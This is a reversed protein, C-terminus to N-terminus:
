AVEERVTAVNTGGLAKLDAEVKGTDMSAPAGAVSIWFGHTSASRFSEHEFVAHYPQPLRSLLMLGFFIFLASLLVGLEFTIPIFMPPSHPPRNGVNIPFDVANMYYMVGYGLTVGGLAGLAAIMPVRSKKLGLAESGGHLPYPSYTDVDQHGHERVARVAALLAGATSFEAVTWLKRPKGAPQTM